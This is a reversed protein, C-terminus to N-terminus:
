CTLQAVLGACITETGVGLAETNEKPRYAAAREVAIWPMQQQARKLKLKHSGNHHVIPLRTGLTQPHLLALPRKRSLKRGRGM